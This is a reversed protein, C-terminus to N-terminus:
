GCRASWITADDAVVITLRQPNYELTMVEGPQVVRLIGAGSQQRARQAVSDSYAQGVLSSLGQSNCEGGVNAVTTSSGSVPTAAPSAAQQGSGGACGALAVLSALTILSRNM